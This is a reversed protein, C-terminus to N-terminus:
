RAGDGLLADPAGGRCGQGRDGGRTARVDADILELAFFVFAFEIWNPLQITCTAAFAVEATGPQV